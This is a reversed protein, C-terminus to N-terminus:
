RGIWDPDDGRLLTQVSGSALEVTLLFTEQGLIRAFALHSGDPSWAPSRVTGELDTIADVSGGDVDMVHLQGSGGRDSVFAIRTGDPSWVPQNDEAAGSTLAHLDSGDRDLMWVNDAGEAGRGSAFVLRDGDPSWGPGRDVADHVTLRTLDTGDPRILYVDTNGDMAAAFAIWEGGPAWSPDSAHGGADFVLESSQDEVTLVYLDGARILAVRRGDPSISPSGELDTGTSMQLRATGDPNVVFVDRDGFFAGSFAIQDRLRGPCDLEFTVGATEGAVVTAQMTPSPATECSNPIGSLEIDHSGPALDEFLIESNEVLDRPAGGDLRVSFLDPNLHPAPRQVANAIRLAGTTPGDVDVGPDTTGDGGSCAALLVLTLLRPLLGFRPRRLTRRFSVATSTAM